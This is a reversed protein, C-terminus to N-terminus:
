KGALMCGGETSVSRLRPVGRRQPDDVPGAHGRLRRHARGVPSPGPPSGRIHHRRLDGTDPCSRGRSACPRLGASCARCYSGVRRRSDQVCMLLCWALALEILLSLSESLLTTDLTALPLFMATVGAAVLGVRQGWIARGLYAMLAVTLVGLLASLLRAALLHIGVSTSVESYMPIPRLVSHPRRGPPPSKPRSIRTGLRDLCCATLLRGSGWVASM